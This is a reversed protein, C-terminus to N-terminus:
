KFFESFPNKFNFKFKSKENQKKHSPINVQTAEDLSMMLIGVVASYAPNNAIDRIGEIRDPVGIRATIPAAGKVATQYAKALEVLGPLLAGGGTFVMGASLSDIYKM